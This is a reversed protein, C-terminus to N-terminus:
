SNSFYLFSIIRSMMVRTAVHGEHYGLALPSMLNLFTQKNQEM